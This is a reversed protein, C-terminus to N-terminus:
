PEKLRELGGGSFLRLFEELVYNYMILVRNKREISIALDQRHANGQNESPFNGKLKSGKLDRGRLSRTKFSRFAWEQLKSFWERPKFPM